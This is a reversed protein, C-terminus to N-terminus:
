IEDYHVMKLKLEKIKEIYENNIFEDSVNNVFVEAQNILMKYQMLGDKKNKKDLCYQLRSELKNFWVKGNIAKKNM